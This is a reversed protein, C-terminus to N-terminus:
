AIGDVSQGGTRNVLQELLVVTRGTNQSTARNYEVGPNSLGSLGFGMKELSTFDTKPADSAAPAANGQGPAAGGGAANKPARALFGGVLGDWSKQINDWAERMSDNAAANMDELGYSGTGLDFQLGMQQREAIAQPASIFPNEGQALAAGTGIPDLLALSNQVAQDILGQVILLPQELAKLIVYGLKAFVGPILAVASEFGFSITQAILTSLQGERFAQAFATLINGLQVGIGTLDVNNLQDLVAQIGPAAGEAIGAFLGGVKSKLRGLTDGLKDFAAANRDFVAAERASAALAERFGDLDGSIQQISGAGERGFIKGAIGAADDRGVSKLATAIALIRGPANMARLKDINIGIQALVDATKEGAETSGALSRSLKGVLPGVSDAGVGSEKFAEQLQYLDGVTGGIRAKLDQLVGGREIAAWTGAVVAGLSVMGGTFAAVRGVVSNLPGLFGGTNLGLAFQLVSANM